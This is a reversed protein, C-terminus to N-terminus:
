LKESAINLTNLFLVKEYRHLVIGLLSTLTRIITFDM